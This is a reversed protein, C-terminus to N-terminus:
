ILVQIDLVSIEGCNVCQYFKEELDFFLVSDRERYRTHPDELISIKRQIDGPNVVYSSKHCHPCIDKPSELEVLGMSIM